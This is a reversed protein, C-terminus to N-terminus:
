GVFIGDGAQAGGFLGAAQAPTGTPALSLLLAMLLFLRKFSIQM